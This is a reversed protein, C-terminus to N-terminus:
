WIQIHFSFHFPNQDYYYFSAMTYIAQQILMRIYAALWFSSWEM